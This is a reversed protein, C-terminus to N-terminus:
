RQCTFGKAMESVTIAFSAGKPMISKFQICAEAAMCIAASAYGMITTAKAGALKALQISRYSLGVAASLAPRAILRWQDRMTRWKSVCAAYGPSKSANTKLCEATVRTTEKAVARDIEDGTTRAVLTAKAAAAYPNCGGVMYAILMVGVVALFMTGGVLIARKIM